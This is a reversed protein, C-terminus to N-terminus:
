FGLENLIQDVDKQGELATSKQESPETPKTRKGFLQIMQILHSELDTVLKYVKKLAQGALDQFEQSIVVQFAHQRAEDLRQREATLFLKLEEGLATQAVPSALLKSELATLESQSKALLGEVEEMGGLTKNAAEFTMDIVHTIKKAADSVNTGNMGVNAPDISRAFGELTKHLLETQDSIKAYLQTEYHIGLTALVNQLTTIDGNALSELLEQITEVKIKIPQNPTQQNNKAGIVAALAKFVSGDDIPVLPVEAIETVETEKTM